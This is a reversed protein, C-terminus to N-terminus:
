AEKIIKDKQSKVVFSRLIFVIAGIAFAEGIFFFGFSYYEYASLIFGEALIGLFLGLVLLMLKKESFKRFLCATAGIAIGGIFILICMGLLTGLLNM